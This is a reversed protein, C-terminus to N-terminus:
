NEDEEFSEPWDRAGHVVALVDISGRVRYAAIYNTRPVVLERTGSVRGIRGAEPSSGLLTEIHDVLRNILKHAASRNDRAVHEQIDQLDNLAPRTWRVRM